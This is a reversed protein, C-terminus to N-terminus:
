AIRTFQVLSLPSSVCAYTSGASTNMTTPLTMLATGDSDVVCSLPVSVRDPEPTLVQWRWVVVADKAIGVNGDLTELAVSADYTLVGSVLWRGRPLVFQAVPQLLAGSAVAVTNIAPAIISGIAGYPYDAPHLLASNACAFYAM